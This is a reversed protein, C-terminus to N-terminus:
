TLIDHQMSFVPKQQHTSGSSETILADITTEPDLKSQNRSLFILSPQKEVFFTVTLSSPLKLVFKSSHNKESYVAPNTISQLTPRPSPGSFIVM